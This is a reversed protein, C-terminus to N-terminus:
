EEPETREFPIGLADLTAFTKGNRRLLMFAIEKAAAEGFWEAYTAAQVMLLPHRHRWVDELQYRKASKTWWLVSQEDGCRKQCVAQEEGEFIVIMGIDPIRRM